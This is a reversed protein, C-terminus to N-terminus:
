QEVAAAGGGAARAAGGAIRGGRAAAAEDVPAGVRGDGGRTCRQAAQIHRRTLRAGGGRQEAAV